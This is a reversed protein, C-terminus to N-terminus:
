VNWHLRIQVKCYICKYVYIDYLYKNWFGGQFVKSFGGGIAILTSKILINLRCRDTLNYLFTVFRNCMRPQFYCYDSASRLCRLYRNHTKHWVNKFVVRAGREHPIRHWAIKTWVSTCAYFYRNWVNTYLYVRTRIYTMDRARQASDDFFSCCVASIARWFVSVPM